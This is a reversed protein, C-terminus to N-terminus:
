CNPTEHSRSYAVNEAYDLRYNMLQESLKLNKDLYLKSTECQFKLAKTLVKIYWTQVLMIVISIALLTM